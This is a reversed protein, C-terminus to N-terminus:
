RGFPSISHSKSFIKAWMCLHITLLLLLKNYLFIYTSGRPYIDFHCGPVKGLKQGVISVILGTLTGCSLINAVVGIRCIHVILLYLTIGHVLLFNICDRLVTYVYDFELFICSYHLPYICYFRM